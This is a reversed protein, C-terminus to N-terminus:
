EKPATIKLVGKRFETKAKKPNIRPLTTSYGFSKYTKEQHFFDKKKLKKESTKEAKVSATNKSLKVNIDKKSFEPLNFKLIVEKSQSNVPSTALPKAKQSSNNKM